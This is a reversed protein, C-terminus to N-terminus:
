LKDRTTLKYSSSLFIWQALRIDVPTNIEHVNLISVSLIPNADVKQYKNETHTKKSPPTTKRWQQRRKNEISTKKHAM